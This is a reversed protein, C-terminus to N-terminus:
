AGISCCTPASVLWIVGAIGGSVMALMQKAETSLFRQTLGHPTLMGVRPRVLLGARRYPVPQHGPAAATRAATPDVRAGRTSSATSACWAASFSSVALRHVPYIGFLFQNVYSM